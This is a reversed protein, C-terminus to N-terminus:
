HRVLGGLVDQLAHAIMGPRVSGCWYVLIGAMAGLLGVRVAPGLGLYSHAGGFAVASLIIGAPVSKTLATFQRQLYGRYIAEECIGASISLAIWLAMEIRGRPLLFQAAQDGAGGHLYPTSISGVVISVILFLVAIGIDRLVQHLSRWREGFVTFLSSGHLAVGVIVLALVLWEFFMTREYIGIRDPNAIARMQDAHIKGRYALLAQVALVLLTHWPSAISPSTVSGAPAQADTKMKIKTLAEYVAWPDRPVAAAQSGALV